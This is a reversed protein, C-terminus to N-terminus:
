TKHPTEGRVVEHLGNEPFAIGSMRDLALHIAKMDYKGCDPLARPLRGAAVWARFTVLDLGIHAAAQVESALRPTSSSLRPSAQALDEIRDDLISRDQVQEGMAGSAPRLVPGALPRSGPEHVGVLPPRISMPHAEASPQARASDESSHGLSADAASSIAPVSRMKALQRSVGHRGTIFTRRLARMSRRVLLCIACKETEAKTTSSPPGASISVANRSAEYDSYAIWAAMGTQWVQDTPRLTGAKEFRAFEDASFPGVRKNDRSIYWTPDNLASV